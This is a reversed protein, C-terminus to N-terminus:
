PASRAVSATFLELLLRPDGAGTKLGTELDVLRDLIEAPETDRFSEAQARAGAALFAPIGAAEVAEAAGLGARMHHVILAVRRLRSALSAFTFLAVSTGDSVRRGDSDEVGHEFLGRLSELAGRRDRVAVRDCYEWVPATRRGAIAAAIDADTIAPRDGTFVALKEIEGALTRLDTGVTRHLAYATELTMAKQRRAALTVLFTSLPSQHRPRSNGFPLDYLPGCEVLLAGADVMAECGPLWSERGGKRRVLSEGAMLLRSEMDGRSVLGALREGHAELFADCRGIFVLKAPAFMSRMRLEDFVVAPDPAGKDEPTLDIIEAGEPMTARVQAGTESVLFEETGTVLIVPSEALRRRNRDLDSFKM